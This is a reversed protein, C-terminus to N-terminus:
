PLHAEVSKFINDAAEEFAITFAVGSIVADPAPIGQMMRTMEDEEDSFERNANDPTTSVLVIVSGAGKQMAVTLDNRVDRIQAEDLVFAITKDEM